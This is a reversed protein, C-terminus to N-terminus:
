LVSHLYQLYHQTNLPSAACILKIDETRRSWPEFEVDVVSSAMVSVMVSGIHDFETPYHKSFSNKTIFMVM